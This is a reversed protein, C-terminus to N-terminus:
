ENDRSPPLVEALEDEDDGGGQYLEKIISKLLFAITVGFVGLLLIPLKAFLGHNQFVLESFEGVLGMVGAIVTCITLLPLLSAIMAPRIRAIEDTPIGRRIMRKTFDDSLINYHMYIMAGLIGSALVLKFVNVQNPVRLSASFVAQFIWDLVTHDYNIAFLAACIGYFFVQFSRESPVLAFLLGILLVYGFVGVVIGPLVIWKFSVSPLEWFVDWTVQGYLDYFFLSALILIAIVGLLLLQRGVFAAAVKGGVNAPAQERLGSPPPATM